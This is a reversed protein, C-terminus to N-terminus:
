DRRYVRCELSTIGHLDDETPLEFDVPEICQLEEGSAPSRAM